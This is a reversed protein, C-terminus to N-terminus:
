GIARGSSRDAIPWPRGDFASDVAFQILDLTEDLRDYFLESHRGPIVHFRGPRTLADKWPGNPHFYGFASEHSIIFETPGDFPRSIYRCIAAVTTVGAEIAQRLQAPDRVDFPMDFHRAFERLTQEVGARMHQYLGRDTKPNMERRDARQHARVLPPDVLIVSGTHEGAATLARALEMAIIAGGCMGGLVYPGGPRAARIETLYQDLADEMREHAPESGAIGCTHLAYVPRDRDLARDLARSLPMVGQLGHVMFFPPKTGGSRVTELM